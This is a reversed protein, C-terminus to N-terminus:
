APAGGPEVGADAGAPPPAPAAAPPNLSDIPIPDLEEARRSPGSGRRGGLLNGAAIMILLVPPIVVLPTVPTFGAWWMAVIGLWVIVGVVWGTAIWVGGADDRAWEGAAAASRQRRIM